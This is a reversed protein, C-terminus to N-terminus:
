GIRIPTLGEEPDIIGPDPDPTDIDLRPLLRDLWAPLFWHAPGILHM